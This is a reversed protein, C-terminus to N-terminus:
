EPSREARIIDLDDRYRTAGFDPFRENFKASDFRSDHAYRPLLERLERVQPSFIGLNEPM